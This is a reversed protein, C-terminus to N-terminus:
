YEVEVVKPMEPLEKWHSPGENDTVGGNDHDAAWFWYASEGEMINGHDFYYGSQCFRWEKNVRKAVLIEREHPATSIPQWGHDDPTQHEWKFHNRTYIVFLLLTLPMFGWSKSAWIYLLWLFQLGVGLIWVGRWKNGILIFQSASLASLLWPLYLAILERM